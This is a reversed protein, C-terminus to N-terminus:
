NGHPDELSNKSLAATLSQKLNVSVYGLTIYVSHWGSIFYWSHSKM